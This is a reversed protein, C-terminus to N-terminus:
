RLFLASLNTPKTQVLIGNWTTFLWTRNRIGSDEVSHARLERGIHHLAKNSRIPSPVQWQSGSRAQLPLIGVKYIVCEVVVTVRYSVDTIHNQLSVLPRASIALFSNKIRRPAFIDKTIRNFCPSLAWLCFSSCQPHSPHSIIYQPTPPSLPLLFTELLVKM